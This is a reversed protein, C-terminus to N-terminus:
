PTKRSARIMEGYDQGLEMARITLAVRKASTEMTKASIIWKLFYERHSKALKMFREMLEPQDDLFEKLLPPMEVTYNKDEELSVQVISGIEKGIQRRLLANLALIYRGEGMPSLAIGAIAVADIFGKVRFSKRFNPKLRGALAPDIDIYYWGSKEFMHEFREIEVSFSVM